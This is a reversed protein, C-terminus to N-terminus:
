FRPLRSVLPYSMYYRRGDLTQPVEVIPRGVPIINPFSEMLEETLGKNMSARISVIKTLGEITLHNKHSMLELVLKFLEFDGRKQTLLPYKELHPIIVNNLAEVSSIHNIVHDNRKNKSINGVGFLSKKRLLVATDKGHLELAFTPIISWGIKLKSNKKIAISFSSEGDAFGTVWYPNLIKDSKSSTSYFRRNPNNTRKGPNLNLPKM